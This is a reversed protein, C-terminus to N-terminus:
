DYWGTLLTGTGGTNLDPLPGKRWKVHGDCFLENGGATKHNCYEEWTNTSREIDDLGLVVMTGSDVMLNAYFIYNTAWHPGLSEPGFYNPYPAGKSPCWFTYPDDVYRPYILNIAQLTQTMNPMIFDGPFQGDHDDAFLAMGLYIQRLNNVCVIRKAQERSKVITPVLLLAIISIIVITVLLEILTFSTYKKLVM